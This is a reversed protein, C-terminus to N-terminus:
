AVTAWTSHERTANDRASCYAEYLTGPVLMGGVTM